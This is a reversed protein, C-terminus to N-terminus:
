ETGGHSGKLSAPAAVSRASETDPGVNAAKKDIRRLTSHDELCMATLLAAVCM